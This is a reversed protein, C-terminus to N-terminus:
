GMLKVISFFLVSTWCHQLKSLYFFYFLKGLLDESIVTIPGVPGTSNTHVGAPRDM